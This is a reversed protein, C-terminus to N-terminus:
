AVSTCNSSTASTAAQASAPGNEAIVVVRMADHEEAAGVAADLADMLTDNLVNRQAPQNLRLWRVPGDQEVLL